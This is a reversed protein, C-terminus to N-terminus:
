SKGLVELSIRFIGSYQRPHGSSKLLTAFIVRLSGFISFRVISTLVLSSAFRCLMSTINIIYNTMGSEIPDIAADELDMWQQLTEHNYPVLMSIILLQYYNGFM